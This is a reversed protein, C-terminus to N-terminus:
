FILGEGKLKTIVERYSQEDDYVLFVKCLNPEEMPLYTSLAELFGDIDEWVCTLAVNEDKEPRLEMDALDFGLEWEARFSGYFHFEGGQRRLLCTAIKYIFDQTYSHEVIFFFCDIRDLEFCNKGCYVELTHLNMSQQKHVDM